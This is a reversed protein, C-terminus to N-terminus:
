QKNKLEENIKKLRTKLKQPLDKIPLTQVQLLLDGRKDSNPTTMGHGEVKIYDTHRTGEPIEVQIINDDINKYDITAGILADIPSIEIVSVLNNDVIAMDSENQINLHVLLDGAPINLNVRPAQDKLRLKNGTRVGKPIIISLTKTQNGEKVTAIKECGFFSEKISVNISIHVDKNKQPATNTRGGGFFHEFVGDPFIDKLVEPPINSYRHQYYSHGAPSATHPNTLSIDYQSKKVPDKLIDYASSIKKFKEEAEVNNPNKDPHFQLALKRYASKIEDLSANKDIGLVQYHNM